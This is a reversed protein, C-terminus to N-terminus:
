IDLTLTHWTSQPLLMFLGGPNGDVWPLDTTNAVTRKLRCSDVEKETVSGQFGRWCSLVRTDDLKDVAVLQSAPVAPFLSSVMTPCWGFHSLNFKEGEEPSRSIPTVSLSPFLKELLQRGAGLSEQALLAPLVLHLPIHYLTLVGFISSNLVPSCSTVAFDEVQFVGGLLFFWFCFLFFFFLFCLLMVSEGILQGFYELKPGTSLSNDAFELEWVEQVKASFSWRPPPLISMPADRDLHHFVREPKGIGVTNSVSCIGRFLFTTEEVGM